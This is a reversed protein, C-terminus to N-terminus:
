KEYNRYKTNVEEQSIRTDFHEDNQDLGPNRIIQHFDEGLIPKKLYKYYFEEKEKKKKLLRDNEESILHIRREAERQEIRRFCYL